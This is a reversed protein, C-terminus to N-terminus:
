QATLAAPQAAEQLPAALLTTSGGARVDHFPKKLVGQWAPDPSHQNWFEVWSLLPSGSDMENVQPEPAYASLLAPDAISRRLFDIADKLRHGNVSLSYLDNGQRQALEAIMVLPEIAFAQYHLALEHRKMERPFAGQSDMDGIAKAYIALGTQYLPNNGSIIGTATYALGRWYFHNNGEAEARFDANDAMLKLAASRLWDIVLTRDAPKLRPDDRFISIALALSAVQWEAVYSKQRNDAANYTLLAGARAWPKMANIACVAEGSDGTVLYRNAADAVIKQLQNYPRSLEEERPNIPGHSGSVYRSPIIESDPPPAPVTAGQCSGLHHLADLLRPTKADQLAARRARVDVFSAGPNHVVPLSAGQASLATLLLCLWALGHIGRPQSATSKQIMSRNYGQM